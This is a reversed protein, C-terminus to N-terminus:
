QIVVPITKLLSNGCRIETYYVGKVLDVVSLSEDIQRCAVRRGSQDFLCWNGKFCSPDEHIVRIFDSSPNPYVKIGPKFPDKEVSVISSVVPVRYTGNGHTAVWLKRDTPSIKLDMAIVAPPLGTDFVDWTQGKDQSVYVSLDTGYYIIDPNLPDIAIANGPVDPLESDLAHWSGGGDDTTFLHNTGFGSFCIYARANDIPDIAIDNPVRVPLIDGTQDWSQGGNSTKYVAPLNNIPVTSVYVVNPDNRAIDIAFIPDGNLPFNGNTVTWSQGHDETRYVYIGCAYLINPSSPALAYPAIFLPSEGPGYPINISFWSQGRDTSGRLNLNQWSGFVRNDDITNIASWSGDGGIARQWADSGRFISTSNDQLGGIAFSSDQTSISFGNYYQTSQYGGNASRFSQARDYSLFVGGDNGLLVLDKITPHYIVFHHDSHSYLPPGDPGDIPPTDLTVGGSSRQFLNIGGDTSKWVDIGVAILEDPDDPAVAIDHSFWGQWRSYDVTNIISWSTGGDASRLLWTFGDNFSFGNGVSAYIRNPNSPARAILIKGNFDQVTTQSVLNWTSGGDLTRYIGKGPTNFNGFAALVDNDNVPNIDVDTGMIVPLVNTWNDGGDISKYIGDTTAAFVIQPNVPSVKIMWVGHKQNYSWDLSKEWTMGGDRSRLIGIGWSGRTRRFAGDTGTDYYNYVEGTGIYMTMSDGPAFEIASVGLVPFGTNVYEWSRELGLKRSRWLGGSASGAYLTSDSQPNVAVALTRGATNFPGMAEWENEFRKNASVDKLRVHEAYASSYADDPIDSEPYAKIYSMLNLAQFSGSIKDIKNETLCGTMCFLCFLPFAYKM